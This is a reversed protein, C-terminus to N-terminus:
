LSTAAFILAPARMRAPEGTLIFDCSVDLARALDPIARAPLSRNGSLYSRLTEYKLGARKALATINTDSAQMAAKIRNIVPDNRDDCMLNNRGTARQPVYSDDHMGGGAGT